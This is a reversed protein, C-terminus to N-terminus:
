CSLDREEAVRRMTKELITFGAELEEDTTNVPLLMRIKVPNAGASFVMLGEEFAAEVITSVVEASGDFPVFAQMAGIGSNEGIARPLRKRLAEIRRQFRGGLVAVRGEPGLYGESELREIIRAGVALGVTSGAYTGAILGPKPNYDHSLLVASGQLAKGVSVIDVYDELDLTQFAYLEGTRAFSQVEDVWVAIKAAQCREMLATFFERPATNFGGEGQVLEFLMGAIQGPYRKFHADLAAVSREISEPNRPDYFPVHLVNGRMPMGQRFAPKDTLEGLALTRGAFAGEFVVIRDAPSHKQFIMKLANENAIAGSVSLWAHKMRKGAHRLLAKSLNLYEIGPFLHGQYVSDGAAAVVATELLDTDAHGFAYVGIGSIFDIRTTGDALRVRAGGGGGGSLAPFFLPRGRLREIDRLARQYTKPTLARRESEEAVAALLERAADRVRPADLLSKFPNNSVKAMAETTDACGAGPKGRFRPNPDFVFAQLSGQTRL